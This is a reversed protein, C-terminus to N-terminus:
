LSATSFTGLARREKSWPVRLLRIYSCVLRINGAYAPTPSSEKMGGMLRFDVRLFGWHGSDPFPTDPPPSAQASQGEQAWLHHNFRVQVRRPRQLQQRVASVAPVCPLCALEAAELICPWGPCM